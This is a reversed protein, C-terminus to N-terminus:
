RSGGGGRCARDLGRPRGEGVRGSSDVGRCCGDLDEQVAVRLLTPGEAAGLARGGGRAVRHLMELLRGAGGLTLLELGLVSLTGTRPREDADQLQQGFMRHFPDLLGDHPGLLRFARLDIQDNLSGSL